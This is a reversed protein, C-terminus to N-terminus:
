DFALPHSPSHTPSFRLTRVLDDTNVTLYGCQYLGSLTISAVTRVEFQEDFLCRFVLQRLRQAFPRTNFLNCFIMNQVFEIAARRAHWKPSACVQELQEILPEIFSFHLYTIAVCTRSITLNKRIFEDNAVISELECLLPFLQIVGTKMPQLCRTFLNTHMQIVTEIFNLAKRAEQDIEVVQGSM